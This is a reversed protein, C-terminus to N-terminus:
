ACARGRSCPVGAPTAEAYRSRELPSFRRVVLTRDVPAVESDTPRAIQRKSTGYWKNLKVIEVAVPTDLKSPKLRSNGTDSM